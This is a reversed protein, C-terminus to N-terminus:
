HHSGGLKMAFTGRSSDFHLTDEDLIHVYIKRHAPGTRYSPKEFTDTLGHVYNRLVPLWYGDM